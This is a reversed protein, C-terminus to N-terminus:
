EETADLAVVLEDFEIAGSGILKAGDAEWSAIVPLLSLEEYILVAAVSGAAIEEGLEDFDEQSYLGSSAGDFIGFDIDGVVGLDHAAIPHVSGDANKAVFELDLVRIIDSTVLSLLRNFGDAGITRDPFEIVLSDIPGFMDDLTHSATMVEHFGELDQQEDGFRGPRGNDSLRAAM